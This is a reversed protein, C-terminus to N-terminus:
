YKRNLTPLSYNTNNSDLIILIFNLTGSSFDPARSLFSHSPFSERPSCNPLCSEAAFERVPFHFDRAASFQRNASCTPNEIIKMSSNKKSKNSNNGKRIDIFFVYFYITAYHFQLYCTYAFAFTLGIGLFFFIIKFNM